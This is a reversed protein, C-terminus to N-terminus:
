PIRPSVRRIQQIWLLLLTPRTPKGVSSKVIKYGSSQRDANRLEM